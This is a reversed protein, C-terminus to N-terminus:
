PESRAIIVLVFSLIKDWWKITFPKDLFQHAERSPFSIWPMEVAQNFGRMKGEEPKSAKVHLIIVV